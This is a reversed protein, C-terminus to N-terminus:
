LYWRWRVVRVRVDEGQGGVVVGDEEFKFDTDQLNGRVVKTHSSQPVTKNSPSSASIPQPPPPDPVPSTQDDKPADSTSTPNEGTSPPTTPVTTVTNKDDVPEEVVDMMKRDTSTTSLLISLVFGESSSPGPAVLYTEGDSELVVAHREDGTEEGAGDTDMRVDGAGAQAHVIKRRKRPLSARVAPDALHPFLACALLVPTYKFGAGMGLGGFVLTRAHMKQLEELNEPDVNIKENATISDFRRRKRGNTVDAFLDTRPPSAPSLAM